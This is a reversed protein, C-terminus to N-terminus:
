IYIYSYIYVSKFLICSKQFIHMAEAFIHMVELFIHMIEAFNAHNRISWSMLLEFMPAMCLLLVNFVIWQVLQQPRPGQSVSQTTSASGIKSLITWIQHPKLPNIHKSNNYHKYNNVYTKFPKWDNGHLTYPAWSISGFPNWIRGNPSMQPGDQGM